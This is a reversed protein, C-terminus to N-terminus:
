SVTIKLAECSGYSTIQSNHNIVQSKHSKVKLKEELEEKLMFNLGNRNMVEALHKESYHLHSYADLVLTNARYYSCMRNVVQLPSSDFNNREVVFLFPTHYEHENGPQRMWRDDTKIDCLSFTCHVNFAYDFEDYFSRYGKKVEMSLLGSFYHEKGKVTVFFRGAKLEPFVKEAIKILYKNREM